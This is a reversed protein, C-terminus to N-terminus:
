LTMACFAVCIRRLRVMTPNFYQSNQAKRRLNLSTAIAGYHSQFAYITYWIRYAKGDCDCWLPISISLGGKFMMFFFGTAIAGYHSQFRLIIFASPSFRRTAIAGYHSQFPSMILNSLSPFSLDCDCWLPISIM